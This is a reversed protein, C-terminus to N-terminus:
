YIDSCDSESICYETRTQPSQNNLPDMDNILGNGCMINCSEGWVLCEWGPTISRCQDSKFNTLMCGDTHRTSDDSEDCFERRDAPDTSVFAGTDADTVILSLDYPDYFNTTAYDGNSELGDGCLDENNVEMM